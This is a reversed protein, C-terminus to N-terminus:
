IAAIANRMKRMEDIKTLRCVMAGASVSLEDKDSATLAATFDSGFL